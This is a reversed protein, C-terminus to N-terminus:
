RKKFNRTKLRSAAVAPLRPRLGVPILGDIREKLRSAAVAVPAVSQQRRKAAKSNM